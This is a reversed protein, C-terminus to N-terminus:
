QKQNLFKRKSSCKGPCLAKERTINGQQALRNCIQNVQQRPRIELQTSLCDDCLRKGSKELYDLVKETNDM